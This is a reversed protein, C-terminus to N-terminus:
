SPFDTLNIQVTRFSGAFSIQINKQTLPCKKTISVRKTGCLEPYLPQTYYGGRGWWGVTTKTKTESIKDLSVNTSPYPQQYALIQFFLFFSSFFFFFTFLNTFLHDMLVSGSIKDLSINTSPYPQQYALIQLPFFFFFFSAKLINQISTCYSAM